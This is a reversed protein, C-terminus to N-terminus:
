NYIHLQEGDFTYNYRFLQYTAPGTTPSGELIEFHSNCCECGLILGSEDVKTQACEKDPDYTCCREYVRFEEYTLRYILIGRYGYNDKYLYGGVPIYDMTNPYLLIDVYFYPINPKDKENCASFSIITILLVLIYKRM